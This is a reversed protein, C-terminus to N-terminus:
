SPPRTLSALRIAVKDEADKARYESAVGNSIFSFLIREGAQTRVMGSLASVGKM